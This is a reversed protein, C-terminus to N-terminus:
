ITMKMVLYEELKGGYDYTKKEKEKFGVSQYCKVAGINSEEVELELKKYGRKRLDEIILEMFERCKGQKRKDKRTRITSIYMGDKISYVHGFTIIDGEHGCYLLDVKNFKKILNILFTEFKYKTDSQILEEFSKYNAPKAIITELFTKKNFVILKM